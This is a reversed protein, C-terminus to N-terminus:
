RASGGEERAKRIIQELEDLERTSLKADSNEIMGAVASAVSGQYFVGVLRQLASRAEKRRSRVPSYIYQRGSERHRVHGKQELIRLLTRVTANARDDGIAQQIETATAKGLRYVVDM